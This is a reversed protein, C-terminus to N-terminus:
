THIYLCSNMLRDLLFMNLYHIIYITYKEKYLKDFNFFKRSIDRRNNAKYSYRM